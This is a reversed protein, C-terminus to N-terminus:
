HKSILSADRHADIISWIGLGLFVVLAATVYPSSSLALMSDAGEVMMQRRVWGSFLMVIVIFIGGKLWHHNYIQGAGPMMLSLLPAIIRRAISQKGKQPQNSRETEFVHGEVEGDMM